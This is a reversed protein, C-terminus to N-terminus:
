NFNRIGNQAWESPNRPDLHSNVVMFRPLDASSVNAKLAADELASRQSTAIENNQQLSNLRSQYANPDNIALAYRKAEADMEQPTMINFPSPSAFNSPAQNSSASPLNPSEQNPNISPLQQNSQNPMPQGFANGLRAQQLYQQGLGSRELNPNLTYARALAPLIKNIDGGAAGLAEQLQDIANLGQQRQFGQQVAGPLVSQLAQGIGKGLVDFQTREGPLVSVM